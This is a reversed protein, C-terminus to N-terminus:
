RNRVPAKWKAFFKNMLSILEAIERQADAPLKEFERLIKPKTAM